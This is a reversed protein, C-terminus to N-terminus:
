ILLLAVFRGETGEKRYHSCLALGVPGALEGRQTSQAAIRLFILLCISVVQCSLSRRAGHAAPCAHLWAVPATLDHSHATSFSCGACSARSNAQTALKFAGVLEASYLRCNIHEKRGRVRTQAGTFLRLPRHELFFSHIQLLKCPQCAALLAIGDRTLSWPGLLESTIIQQYLLRM